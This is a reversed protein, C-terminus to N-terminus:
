GKAFEREQERQVDREAITARKDYNKKGRCVALEVKVLGHSLYLSLPVLTLGKQQTYGILRRIQAKHLLLKRVRMPERNFQNAQKYASIHLHHLWVEGNTVLAYSDRLNAQGLRISKVEMGFLEIGCELTEEVFYDHRAKRNQAVTKGPKPQPTVV